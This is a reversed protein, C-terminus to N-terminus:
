NNESAQVELWKAMCNFFNKPNLIWWVLCDLTDAKEFIFCLFEEDDKRREIEQACEWASNSDLMIPHEPFDKNAGSTLWGAEEMYSYILKLDTDTM